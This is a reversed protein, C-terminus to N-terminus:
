LESFPILRGDPRLFSKRVIRSPLTVFRAGFGGDAHAHVIELGLLAASGRRTPLELAASGGPQLPVGSRLRIGGTSIDVSRVTIAPAIAHEGMLVAIRLSREYAQRPSARREVGAPAPGDPGGVAQSTEARRNTLM